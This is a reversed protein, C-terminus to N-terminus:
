YMYLIVYNISNCRLLVLLYGKVTVEDAGLGKSSSRSM